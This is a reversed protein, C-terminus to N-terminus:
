TVRTSDCLHDKQAKPAKTLFLKIGLNWFALPNNFLKWDQTQSYCSYRLSKLKKNAEIPKLTKNLIWTEQM